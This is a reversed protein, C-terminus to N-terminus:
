LKRLHYRAGPGGRSIIRYGQPALQKNVHFVLAAVTGVCDPGGDVDDAYVLDMLESSTIGNPRNAIVEVLRQRIPGSVMLKPPM